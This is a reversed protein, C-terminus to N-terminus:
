VWKDTMSGLLAAIYEVVIRLNPMGSGIHCCVPPLVNVIVVFNHFGAIIKSGTIISYLRYFHTKIM